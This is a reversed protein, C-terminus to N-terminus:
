RYVSWVTKRHAGEVVKGGDMRTLYGHAELLTCIRQATKSERVERPGNRYILQPYIEDYGQAWELLKEALRIDPDLGSICSIRVAETLYYDMLAIARTIRSDDIEPAQPDEFHQFILALRLVMEAAKAAFPRIGALPQEDALQAEIVDHYQVWVAKAAPTLSLPHPTLENPTEAAAPFPQSLLARVREWYRVM